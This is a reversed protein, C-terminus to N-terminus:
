PRARELHLAVWEERCCHSKFRWGLGILESLVDPEQEQLVGSLLLMGGPRLCGALNPLDPRLRSPLVNALVVDFAEFPPRMRISVLGGALLQPELDNLRCTELAVFTAVPDTDLATVSEAGSALAVMALIGSGTGVDLVRKGGLRVEEMLQVLLATSAHSGTGFATRAPIRLLQRQDPAQLPRENPERPDVWWRKGVAFPASRSRYARQWDESAVAAADMLEAGTIVHRGDLLEQIAPQLPLTFYVRYEASGRGAEVSEVGLTGLSWVEAVFRDEDAASVLFRLRQYKESIASPEEDFREDVL